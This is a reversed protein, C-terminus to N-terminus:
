GELFEPEPVDLGRMVLHDSLVELAKSATEAEFVLQRAPPGPDTWNASCTTPEARVVLRPRDSIDALYVNM